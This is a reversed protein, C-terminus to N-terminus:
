EGETPVAGSGRGLSSRWDTEDWNGKGHNCEHCLVQLNSLELALEPYKKRPRIHDVHLVVDPPRAGCCECTAGREKLAEMRLRRWAFSKLFAKSTPDEPAGDPNPKDPTARDGRLYGNYYGAHLRGLMKYGDRPRSPRDLGLKEAVYAFVRTKSLQDSLNFRRRASDLGTRRTETVDNM